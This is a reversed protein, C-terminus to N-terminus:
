RTPCSPQWAAETFVAAILGYLAPDYRRLTERSSIPGDYGDGGGDAGYAPRSADFFDQVGEAWYEDVNTMAYTNRYVDLTRAALFAAEIRQEFGPDAPLVAMDLVSHGLEHVLVSQGPYTDRDSCLLNEEPAAALPRRPTAGYARAADWDTRPYSTPLDRYEPLDVARQDVGIVGLRFGRRAMSAALDPRAALMGRVVAAAAELAADDVEAAAVVPLGDVVCAKAYFTDLGLARAAQAVRCPVGSPAGSGPAVPTSESPSGGPDTALVPTAADPQPAGVVTGAPGTDATSASTAGAAPDAALYLPEAGILAVSDGVTGTAACASLAVVAALVGRRGPIRRWRGPDPGPPLGPGRAPGVAGDESPAGPPQQPHPHSM